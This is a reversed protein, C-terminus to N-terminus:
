AMVEVQNNFMQNLLKNLKGPEEATCANRKLSRLYDADSVHTEAWFDFAAALHKRIVRMGIRQSYLAVSDRAQELLSDVQRALSPAELKTGLSLSKEIAAPLWALGTAARGVMVGKAGSQQLASRASHADYIDGNAIVPISVAEVVPRIAQWDAAGEYFEQRTRGHVTLLSVGAREAIVALDAANMTDRDWGLRMKLTVPVHEAGFKVAHILREAKQLDKMLASGSLGGTVRRSPCGMNIDIIDAGAKRAFIAGNLLATEERGVLQVVFPNAGAHRELRQFAEKKGSELEDGAVMETITAFAGFKSAQKRFPSDTVGSMPALLVPTQRNSLAYPGLRDAM